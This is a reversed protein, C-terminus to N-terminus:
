NESLLANMHTFPPRLASLGTPLSERGEYNIEERVNVLTRVGMELPGRHLCLSNQTYVKPQFRM